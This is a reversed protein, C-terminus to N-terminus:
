KSPLTPPKSLKSNEIKVGGLESILASHLRNKELTCNRMLVASSGAVTFGARGNSHMQVKELTVRECLDHANVGDLRFGRFTLDMVQVDRANYLTLGVSHYAFRFPKELPSTLPASRYFIEGKWATWQGVALKPRSQPRQAPRVEPVPQNNLLLQYHGKRWPRIKWVNGGVNKWANAPVPRSGDVIAGNGILTFPLGSVGSLRRGAITISEYYPTGTNSVIITDGQKALAIAKGITRTPGTGMGAPKSARGDNGDSGQRNDVYLIGASCHQLGMSLCLAMGLLFFMIRKRQPIIQSVM